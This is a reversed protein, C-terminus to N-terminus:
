PSLSNLSSSIHKSNLFSLNVEQCKITEQGNYFRSDGSVVAPRPQWLMFLVFFSKSQRSDSQSHPHFSFYKTFIHQLIPVVSFHMLAFYIEALICIQIGPGISMHCCSTQIHPLIIASAVAEFM